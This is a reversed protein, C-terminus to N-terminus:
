GPARWLYSAQKSKAKRRPQPLTTKLANGVIQDHRGPRLHSGVEWVLRVSQASEQFGISLKLRAVM